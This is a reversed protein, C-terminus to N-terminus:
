GIFVLLEVAVIGLAAVVTVFDIHISFPPEHVDESIFTDCASGGLLTLVEFFHNLDSLFAFDVDDDGLGDGAVGSVGYVSQYM